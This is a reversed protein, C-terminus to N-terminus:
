TSALIKEDLSSRRRLGRLLDMYFFKQGMVFLLMGVYIVFLVFCELFLWPLPSLLHGWYLRVGLAVAAAVASSALPKSV